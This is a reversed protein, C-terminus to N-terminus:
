EEKQVHVVYKVFFKEENEGWGMPRVMLGFGLGCGRATIYIAAPISVLHVSLMTGTTMPRDTNTKITIFFGQGKGCRGMGLQWM